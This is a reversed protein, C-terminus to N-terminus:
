YGKLPIDEDSLRGAIRLFALSAESAVSKTGNQAEPCPKKSEPVIGLLRAGIEDIYDDVCIKGYKKSVRNIVLRVDKEGEERALRAAGAAARVSVPDPTSIIVCLRAAYLSLKFGREIGAPSDFIVFDYDDELQSILLAFREKTFEEKYDLPAPLLYLSQSVPIIAKKIDCDGVLADGWNYVTKEAVGLLLDLSRVGVDMDVLLTKKGHSSLERGVCVCFTSKGVGGKASVVAISM